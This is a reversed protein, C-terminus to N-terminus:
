TLYVKTYCHLANTSNIFTACHVCTLLFSEYDHGTLSKWTDYNASLGTKTSLDIRLFYPITYSRSLNATAVMALALNNNM